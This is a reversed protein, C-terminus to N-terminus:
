GSQAIRNRGAGHGRFLDIGESALQEPTTGSDRMFKAADVATGRGEAINIRAGIARAQEFSTGPELIQARVSAQGTRRALDLRQHGNVVLYDGPHEPDHMLTLVGSLQPNFRKAKTLALGAGERGYNLKYQLRKPATRIKDVPVEAIGAGPAAELATL